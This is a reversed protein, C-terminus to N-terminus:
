GNDGNSKRGRRQKNMKDVYSKSAAALDATLTGKDETQPYLLDVMSQRTYVYDKGQKKLGYGHLQEEHKFRNIELYIAREVYTM